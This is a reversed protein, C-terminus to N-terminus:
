AEGGEATYVRVLTDGYERERVLPLQIVAPTEPASETVVRGERPPRAREGDVAKAQM